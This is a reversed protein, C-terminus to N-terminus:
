LRRATTRGFLGQPRLAIVLLMLIFPFTAKYDRGVYGGLVQEVLGIAIGGAVVGGISGFGGLVAAAFGLVMVNFGLNIDVVGLPGFLVGALGALAASLGFVLMSLWNVPVGCLRATDRDAATARLQRGFQTHQFVFIMVVVVVATVAMIVIRQTSINAGFVAVVDGAVPSDLFKPTTGQWLGIFAQVVIAAGLTAIVVVHVSRGRLPAYALRELVMGVIFMVGITVLYGPVPDLAGLNFM